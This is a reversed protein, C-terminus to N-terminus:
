RESRRRTAWAVRGLVLALGGAVAVFVLTQRWGGRAESGCGPRELAGVCDGLNREEPLFENVTVPPEEAGATPLAGATALPVGDVPPAAVAVLLLM